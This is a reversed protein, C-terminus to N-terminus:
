TDSTIELIYLKQYNVQENMYLLLILHSKSIEMSYM